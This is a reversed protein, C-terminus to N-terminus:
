VTAQLLDVHGVQAAHGVMLSRLEHVPLVTSGLLAPTSQGLARDAPESAKGLPEVAFTLSLPFSLAAELAAGDKVNIVVVVGKENVKLAFALALPGM